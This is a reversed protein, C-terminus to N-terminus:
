VQRWKMLSAAGATVFALPALLLEFPRLVVVLWPLLTDHAHRGMVSAAEILLAIVFLAAASTWLRSQFDHAPESLWMGFAGAAISLALVRGAVYRAQLGNRRAVARRLSDRFRAAETALAGLRAESVSTLATDACAF